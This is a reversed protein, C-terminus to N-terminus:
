RLGLEFEHGPLAVPMKLLLGAENRQRGGAFDLTYSYYGYPFVLGAFPTVTMGLSAGGDDWIITPGAEIGVVHSIQWGLHIKQYELKEERGCLDINLVVAMPLENRWVIYSVEIGTTFGGGQGFTYGLKIGPSIFREDASSTGALLSLVLMLWLRRNKVMDSM